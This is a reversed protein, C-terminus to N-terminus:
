HFFGKVVPQHNGKKEELWAPLEELAEDTKAFLSAYPIAYGEYKSKPSEKLPITEETRVEKPQKEEMVFPKPKQYSLDEIKALPEEEVHFFSPVTKQQPKPLDASFTNYEYTEDEEDSLLIKFETQEDQPLVPENPILQEETKIEEPQEFFSNLITTQEPQEAKEENRKKSYDLGKKEEATLQDNLFTFEHYKTGHRRILEEDSIHKEDRVFDYGYDINVKGSNDVYHIRDVVHSGHMPSVIESRKFKAQGRILDNFGYQIQPIVFKEETEVIWKTKKM